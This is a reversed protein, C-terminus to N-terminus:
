RAGAAELRETLEKMGAELAQRQVAQSFAARRIFPHPAARSTGFEVMAAYPAKTANYSVHYTAVGKRSNDVSYVRYISDRLNGPAFPGYRQNKGKFYHSKKSVPAFSRAAEYYVLAMAAAAPQAAEEAATGLGQLYQRLESTNVKITFSM